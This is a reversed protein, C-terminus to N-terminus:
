ATYNRYYKRLDSMSPHHQTSASLIFGLALGIGFAALVVKGPNESSYNRVRRYKEGAMQETKEYTDSVAREARDYYEAGREKVGQDESREGGRGVIGQSSTEFRNKENAM